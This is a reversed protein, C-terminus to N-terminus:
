AHKLIHLALEPLSSSSFDTVIGGLSLAVNPTKNKTRDLCRVISSHEWCHFEDLARNSAVWFRPRYYGEGDSRWARLQSQRVSISRKDLIKAEIGVHQKRGVFSLWLDPIDPAIIPSNERGAHHKAAGGDVCIFRDQAEDVFPALYRYLEAVFRNEQKM